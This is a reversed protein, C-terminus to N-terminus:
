INRFRWDQWFLKINKLLNEHDLRFSMLTNNKDQDVEKVQFTNVYRNMKPMVLVLPRIDKDLYRIM